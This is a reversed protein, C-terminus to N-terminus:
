RGTDEGRGHADDIPDGTGPAWLEELGGPYVLMTLLLSRFSWSTALGLSTFRRGFSEM